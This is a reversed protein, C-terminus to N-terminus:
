SVQHQTYDLLPSQLTSDEAVCDAASSHVELETNASQPHPRNCARCKHARGAHLGVSFTACAGVGAPLLCCIVIPHEPGLHTISSARVMCCTSAGRRHAREMCVRGGPM